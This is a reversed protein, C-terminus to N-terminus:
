YGDLLHFFSKFSTPGLTFLESSLTREDWSGSLRRSMERGGNGERREFTDWMVGAYNEEVIEKEKWRAFSQVEDELGHLAAKAM